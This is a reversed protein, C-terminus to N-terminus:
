RVPRTTPQATTTPQLRQRMRIVLFEALHRMGIPECLQAHCGLLLLAGINEEYALLYRLPPRLSWYALRLTSSSLPRREMPFSHLYRQWRERLLARDTPMWLQLSVGYFTPRTSSVSPIVLKIADYAESPETGPLRSMELVAGIRLLGRAEEAHLRLWHSFLGRRPDQLRKRWATLHRDREAREQPTLPRSRQTPVFLIRQKSPVPPLASQKQLSPESRLASPVFAAKARVSSSVSRASPVITQASSSVSRASPAIIQASSHVTRLSPQSRLLAGFRSEMYWIVGGLVSLGGVLFGAFIGFLVARSSRMIRSWNRTMDARKKEKRPRMALATFPERCM